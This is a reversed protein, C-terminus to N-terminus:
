PFVSLYPFTDMKDTRLSFEGWNGVSLDGAKKRHDTKEKQEQKKLPYISM